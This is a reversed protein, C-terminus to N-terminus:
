SSLLMSLMFENALNRQARASFVYDIVQILLISEFIQPFAKLLIRMLIVFM